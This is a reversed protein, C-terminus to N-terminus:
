ATARGSSAGSQPWREVPYREPLALVATSAIAERLEDPRGGARAKALTDRSLRFTAPLYTEMLPNDPRYSGAPFRLAYTVAEADAGVPRYLPNVALPGRAHPTGDLSGGEPLPLERAALLSVLQAGAVAEVDVERPSPMGAGRLYRLVVQEDSLVTTQWGDALAAWGAPSLPEGAFVHPVLSNKVSTVALVGDATLVRQSERVATVKDTIFSLVDVAIAAGFTGGAFPMRTADGCVLLVGEGLLQRAVLLQVFSADIGIVGENGHRQAFAWTLQGAGCGLDLLPRPEAVLADSVSLAVLHRPSSYRYRFYAYADPTAKRSTLYAHELLCLPDDRGARVADAGAIRDRDALRRSLGALVRRSRGSVTLAELQLRGRSHPFRGFAVESVAEDLRGRAVLGRVLEVDEETFVPIGALVPWRGAESVLAGFTVDTGDREWAELRLRQGSRPCRLLDV